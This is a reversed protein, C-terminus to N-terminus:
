HAVEDQGGSNLYKSITTQNELLVKEVNPLRLSPSAEADKAIATVIDIYLQRWFLNQESM